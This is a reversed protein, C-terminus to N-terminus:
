NNQRKTHKARVVGSKETAGEGTDPDREWRKKYEYQVRNLFRITAEYVNEGEDNTIFWQFARIVDESWFDYIEKDQIMDPPFVRDDSPFRVGYLHPGFYDDIWIADEYKGTWPHKTIQQYTSM